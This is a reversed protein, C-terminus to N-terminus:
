RRRRAGLRGVGGIALLAFSAPKPVIQLNDVTAFATASPTQEGSQELEVANMGRADTLVFTGQHLLGGDMFLSYATDTAGRALDVRILHDVNESLISGLRTVTTGGGTGTAIDISGFGDNPLPNGQADRVQYDFGLSFQNGYNTGNPGSFPASAPLFDMAYGETSDTFNINITFSISAVDGPANLVSPFTRIVDTTGTFRMAGGVVLADGAGPEWFQWQGGSVTTLDGASYTFNEILGAARGAPNTALTLLLAAGLAPLTATNTFTKM